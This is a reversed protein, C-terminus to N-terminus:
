DGQELEFRHTTYPKPNDFQGIPQKNGKPEIIKGNIILVNKV